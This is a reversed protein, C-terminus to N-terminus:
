ARCRKRWRPSDRACSQLRASSKVWQGRPKGDEDYYTSVGKVMYGDPVTRTMAHDPSYGSRAARAKLALMSNSITGRSIGLAAAAKRESGYKEVAEIFEAQRPTAWEILRQDNL